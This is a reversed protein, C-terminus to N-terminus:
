FLLLEACKLLYLDSCHEIKAEFSALFANQSYVLELRWIQSVNLREFALNAWKVSHLKASLGETPM